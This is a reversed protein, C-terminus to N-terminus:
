EGPDAVPSTGINEGSSGLVDKLEAVLVPLLTPDFHVADFSFRPHTGLDPRRVRGAVAMHGASDAAYFRLSLERGDASQLIAEGRRANELESLAALFTLWDRRAVIVGIAASFDAVRVDLATFVDPGEAGTVYAEQSASVTVHDNGNGLKM